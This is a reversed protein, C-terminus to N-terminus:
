LTVTIGFIKLHYGISFMSLITDKLHLISVMHEIIITEFEYLWTNYFDRQGVM